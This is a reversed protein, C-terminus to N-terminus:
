RVWKQLWAEAGLAEIIQIRANVGQSLDGALAREIKLRDFVGSRVLAGDMLFERIFPLQYLFLSDYLTQVGGKSQRLINEDPAFGQFAYRALGRDIGQLSLLYVPIGLVLEIVPQAEVPDIWPVENARANPPRHAVSPRCGSIHLAKAPSVDEVGELWHRCRVELDVNRCADDTMLYHSVDGVLTARSMPSGNVGFKVARGLAAWFSREGAISGYRVHEFLGRGFGKHFIYDEVYLAPPSYFLGDGGEGTFYAQAGLEDLLEKEYAGKAVSFRTSKPEATAMFKQVDPLHINEATEKRTILRVKVYDAAMQAYCREDADIGDSYYHVAAIDPRADAVHLASLVITSDLGGSLRHIISSYEGAWAHVCGVVTDWLKKALTDVAHFPETRCFSMPHWYQARELRGQSVYLAEGPLVKSVEQLGTDALDLLPRIIHASVHSLNPTLKELGLAAFHEADSFFILVDDYTYFYAPMAGTPDRVVIHCNKDESWLFATYRGWYFDVLQRGHTSVIKRSEGQELKQAVKEGITSATRRFLTGAVVGSLGELTYTRIGPEDTGAHLFCLGDGSFAEQYEPLRQAIRDVISRATGFCDPHPAIVCFYSYM